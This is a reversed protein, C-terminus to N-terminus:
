IRLMVVEDHAPHNKHGGALQHLLPLQITVPRTMLRLKIKTAPIGRNTFHGTPMLSRDYAQASVTALISPFIEYSARFVM